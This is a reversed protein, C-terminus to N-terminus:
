HCGTIQPLGGTIPGTVTPSPVSASALSAGVFLYMVLLCFGILFGFRTPRLGARLGVLTSVRM